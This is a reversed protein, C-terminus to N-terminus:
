QRYVIPVKGKLQRHELLHPGQFLTEPWNLLAYALVNRHEGTSLDDSGKVSLVMNKEEDVANNIADQMALLTPHNNLGALLFCLGVEAQVDEKSHKVIRQQRQEFYDLIWAHEQKSVTHQYYQSDALIIHTLGYLKNNFERKSLKSDQDDPYARLFAAKLDDTWDSIKLEKLWYVYNAVQAAYAHIFSSSMLLEYLQVTNIYDVFLQHAPHRLGYENLKAMQYILFLAFRKDQTDQLVARRLKGRPTKRIREIMAKSQQLRWDRDHIHEAYMNLRDTIQHVETAAQQAYYLEGTLRYMRVAYHNQAGRSLRVFNSDYTTRIREATARWQQQQQANTKDSTANAVNAVLGSLGSALLTVLLLKGM